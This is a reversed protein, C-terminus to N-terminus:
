WIIRVLHGPRVRDKLSFFQINTRNMIYVKVMINKNRKVSFKSIQEIVSPYYEIDVIDGQWPLM